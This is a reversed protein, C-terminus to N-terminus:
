FIEGREEKFLEESWEILDYGNDKFWKIICPREACKCKNSEYVILVIIPEGEYNNILKVEKAVREFENLLYNFDQEKLYNYYMDMFQCHPVKDLYPCPKSEGCKEELAEFKSDLTDPHFLEEKIGIMVNNNDLFYTDKKKNNYQYIWYPWSGTTAVPIMNPKFFRIHYFNTIFIRM